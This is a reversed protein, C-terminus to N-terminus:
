SVVVLPFAGGDGGAEPCFSQSVLVFSTRAQNNLDDGMTDSVIGFIHEPITKLSTM